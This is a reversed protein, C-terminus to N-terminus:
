GTAGLVWGETRAAREHPTDRFAHFLEALRDSADLEGAWIALNLVQAADTVPHLKWDKEVCRPWVEAHVILPEQTHAISDIEFPWVRSCKALRADARLAAVRPIGLLSQSGVSGNGYLQWASFPRKGAQRLQEEVVRFEPINAPWPSPKTKTLTASAEKPPVGWFPAADGTMKKNASSAVAFRNNENTADDRIQKALWSWYDSWTKGAGLLLGYGAEPLGLSFDYGVLARRGADVVDRLKGGLLAAAFDRTSPNILEQVALSGNDRFRAHCLWVSNKGVNPDSSASWDVFLYDDFLTKARRIIPPPEDM